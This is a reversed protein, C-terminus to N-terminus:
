GCRDDDPPCKFRVHMHDAHNPEHRVLGTMAGVGHPYQLLRNLYAAEVGNELAWDYLRGQVDFDLFIAAVGGPEDATDAFAHLLAWTAALDLQDVATVFSQPYGRPVKTYYLGVDVDRGSQHSRHETVAGGRRASIDGIALTHLDPIRRRVSAIVREIYAIVHSCGYARYPRRIFYGEGPALVTGAHLSGSWPQGLSQGTLFRIPPPRLSPGCAPIDLRQGPRILASELQNAQQIATVTCGHLRAISSLTQGSEVIHWTRAGAAPRTEVPSETPLATAVRRAPKAPAAATADRPAAAAATKAAASRAARERRPRDVESPSSVPRADDLDDCSGATDDVPANGVEAHVPLAPALIAVSAVFALLGATRM